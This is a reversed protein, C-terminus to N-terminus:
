CGARLIPTPHENMTISINTTVGVFFLVFLHWCLSNGFPFARHFTYFIVLLPCTVWGGVTGYTQPGVKEGTMKKAM